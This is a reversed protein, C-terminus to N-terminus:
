RSAPRERNLGFFRPGSQHVGTIAYAVATLSQYPRGSYHFQGDKKKRVTHVRGNHERVLIADDHIMTNANPNPIKIEGILEARYFFAERRPIGKEICRVHWHILRRLLPVRLNRPAAFGTLDRYQVRLDDLTHSARGNPRDSAM